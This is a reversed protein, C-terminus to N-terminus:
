LGQSLELIQAATLAQPYVKVNQLVGRFPNNQAAATPIGLSLSVADNTNLNYTLVPSTQRLVGNIYVRAVGGSYTCAIHVPTNATYANTVVVDTKAAETGLRFWLEGNTRLKVSWGHKTGSAPLKDVPSMSTTQDAANAFFAVTLNTSRGATGGSIANTGTFTVPGNLKYSPFAALTAIENDSLLEDYVRVDQLTGYYPNNTASVSPVGLRLDTGNNLLNYSLGTITNRPVGNVYIKATGNAYSCAIHVRTNVALAATAVVDTKVLETGLRFWLDGNTRMKVAWGSETGSAPLKDVPSMSTTLQSPTAFFAVTVASGRGADDGNVSNTGTFTQPGEFFWDSTPAAANVTITQVKCEAPAYTSDGDQIAWIDATGASLIQLANNNVVTAVSPNSSRYRITRGAPSLTAQLPVNPAGVYTDALAPFTITQTANGPLNGDKYFTAEKFIVQPNTFPSEMTGYLGYKMYNEGLQIGDRESIYNDVADIYLKGNVWVKIRGNSIITRDNRTEQIHVVNLKFEKNNLGTFAPPTNVPDVNVYSLEGGNDSSGRIQLHTAQNPSHGWIQMLSQGRETTGGGSNSNLNGNFTIFAEFQRKAGSNYNAENRYEVRNCAVGPGGIHKFIETKTSPDYNYSGKIVGDYWDYNIAMPQLYPYTDFANLYTKTVNENQLQVKKNATDVSWGAGVGLQAHVIQTALLAALASSVKLAKSM